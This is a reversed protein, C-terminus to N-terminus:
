LPAGADDWWPGPPGIGAEPHNPRINTPTPMYYITPTSNSTSSPPASIPGVATLTAHGQLPIRINYVQTPDCQQPTTHPPPNTPFLNVPRPPSICSNASRMCTYTPKPPPATAKTHPFDPTTAAHPTIPQSHQRTTINTTVPPPTTCPQAMAQPPTYPHILESQLISTTPDDTLDSTDPSKGKGKGKLQSPSLHGIAEIHDLAATLDDAAHNVLARIRLIRGVITSPSTPLHDRRLVNDTAVFPAARQYSLHHHPLQTALHVSRLHTGSTHGPDLELIGSGDHCYSFTSTICVTSILLSLYFATTIFLDHSHSHLTSFTSLRHHQTFVSFGLELTWFYQM